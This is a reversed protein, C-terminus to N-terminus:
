QARMETRGKANLGDKKAIVSAVEECVAGDAATTARRLDHKVYFERIFDQRLYCCHGPTSQRFDSALNFLQRLVYAPRL